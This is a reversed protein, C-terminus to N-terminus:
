FSTGLHPAPGPRRQPTTAKKKGHKPRRRRRRRRNAKGVTAVPPRRWRLLRPQPLPPASCCRGRGVSGGCSRLTARCAGAERRAGALCRRETSSSGAGGFVCGPVLQQIAVELAARAVDAARLLRKPGNLVLGVAAPAPARAAESKQVGARRRPGTRARRRPKRAPLAAGWVVLGLRPALGLPGRVAGEWGWVPEGDLAVLDLPQAPAHVHAVFGGAPHPEPVDPELPLPNHVLQRELLLHRTPPRTVWRMPAASEENQKRRDSPKRRADLPSCRGKPLGSLM